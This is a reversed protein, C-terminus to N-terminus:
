STETPRPPTWADAARSVIEYGKDTARSEKVMEDVNEVKVLEKVKLIMGATTGTQSLFVTKAYLSYPDVLNFVDRSIGVQMRKRLGMAQLTKRTREPM